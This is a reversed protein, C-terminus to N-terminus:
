VVSIKLRVTGGYCLFIKKDMVRMNYLVKRVIDICCFKVYYITVMM